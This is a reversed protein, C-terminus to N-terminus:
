EATEQKIIHGAPQHTQELQNIKDTLQTISLNLAEITQVLVDIRAHAIDVRSNGFLSM